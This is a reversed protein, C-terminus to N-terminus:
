QYYCLIAAISLKLLIDDYYNFLLSLLSMLMCVNSLNKRGRTVVYNKSLQKVITVEEHLWAPGFGLFKPHDPWGMSIMCCYNLLHNCCHSLKKKYYVSSQEIETYIMIVACFFTRLLNKEIVIILEHFLKDLSM